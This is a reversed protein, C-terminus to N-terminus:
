EKVTISYCSSSSTTSEKIRRREKDAIGVRKMMMVIEKKRIRSAGPPGNSRSLGRSALTISFRL